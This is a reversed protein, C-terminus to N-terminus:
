SDSSDPMPEIGHEACWAALAEDTARNEFEYWRELKGRTDLLGKFRGYAGRRRFFGAVTDYDDPLEDAAFALALRRGLGLECQSPLAVYRDSDDIDQPADGEQLDADTSMWFVQGTDLSIYASHDFAEGTSVFDFADRLERSNVTVTKRAAV